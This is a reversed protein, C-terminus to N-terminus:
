QITNVLKIEVYKEITMNKNKQISKFLIITISVYSFLMIIVPLTFLIIVEYLGLLQSEWETDLFILECGAAFPAGVVYQFFFFANDM